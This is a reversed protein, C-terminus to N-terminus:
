KNKSYFCLGGSQKEKSINDNKHKKSVKYFLVGSLQNTILIVIVQLQNPCQRTYDNTKKLCIKQYFHM